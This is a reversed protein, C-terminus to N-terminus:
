KKTRRRNALLGIGGLGLLSLAAPEPVYQPGVVFDSASSIWTNANITGTTQGTFGEDSYVSFGFDSVSAWSGNNFEISDSGIAYDFVPSISEVRYIGDNAGFGYDIFNFEDFPNGMESTTNTFSYDWRSQVGPRESDMDSTNNIVTPNVTMTAARAPKSVEAAGAIALGAVLGVLTNKIAGM